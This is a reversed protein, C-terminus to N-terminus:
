PPSAMMPQHLPWGPGAEVGEVSPRPVFWPSLYGKENDSSTMRKSINALNEPNIKGAM